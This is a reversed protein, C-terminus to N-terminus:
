TVHMRAKFSFQYGHHLLTVQFSSFVIICVGLIKVVCVKVVLVEFSIAPYEM